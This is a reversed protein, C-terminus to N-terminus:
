RSPWGYATPDWVQGQAPGIENDEYRQQLLAQAGSGDSSIIILIPNLSYKQKAHVMPIWEHTPGLSGSNFRGGGFAGRGVNVAAIRSGDPSWSAALPGGALIKVGTGDANIRYLGNRPGTGTIFLLRTGDASVEVRAVSDEEGLHAVAQANSGDPNVSYLVNPAGDGERRSFYVLEDDPSWDPLSLGAGNGEVQAVVKPEEDGRSVVTIMQVNDRYQSWLVALRRGDNSWVASTGWGDLPSTFREEEGGDANIIVVENEHVYAIREGDPSWVPAATLEGLRALRKVKKGDINAREIHRPHKKERFRGIFGEGRYEYNMYAVRGDPSLSPSFQHDNREEPISWLETGKVDVGYITNGINVVITQGDASWQPTQNATGRNQSREDSVEMGYEIGTLAYLYLLFLGVAGIIALMSLGFCGWGVWKWIM